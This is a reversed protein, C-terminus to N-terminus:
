VSQFTMKPILIFLVYVVYVHAPINSQLNETMSFVDKSLSLATFDVFDLWVTKLIRPKPKTKKISSLWITWERMEQIEKKHVTWVLSQLKWKM